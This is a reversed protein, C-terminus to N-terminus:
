ARSGNGATGAEVVGLAARVAARARVLPMALKIGAARAHGGGGLTAAVAAVDVARPGPKSRLSVKTLPGRAEAGGAGSTVETLIAVVSVGVVTMVPEAFGGTDEPGAGTAAFDPGALCMMGVRGVGGPLDAFELSTLARGLLRPRAEADRQEVMEYLGVADAGAAMLGSAATLTAPTVNSFRFWGTDTAIGLYLPTAVAAPVPGGLLLGALEAVMEAAAAARPKIWRRPAVEADGHLHHDIICAREARAALWPVLSDLQVRSGTDCVCVADPEGFAAPLDAPVPSQGLKRVPTPGAVTELWVPFPGVYWCEVAAGLAAMARALGLTSGLADGDPKAHTLCVVRRKDSLWRALEAPNVSSEYVGRGAAAIGPVAVDTQRITM